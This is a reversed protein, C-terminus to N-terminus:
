GEAPSETEGFVAEITEDTQINTIVLPNTTVDSGNRIWKKFEYGEDECVARLTVKNGTEFYGTGYVVGKDAGEGSKTVAVELSTYPEPTPVENFESCYTLRTTFDNSNVFLPVGAGGGYFLGSALSDSSRGYFLPNLVSPVPTSPQLSDNTFMDSYFPIKTDVWEGQSDITWIDTDPVATVGAGTMGFKSMKTLISTHDNLIEPPFLEIQSVKEYKSEDLVDESGWNANDRAVYVSFDKVNRTGEWVSTVYNQYGDTLKSLHGYINAVGRYRNPKVTDFPETGSAAPIAYSVEDTHTGKVHGVGNPVLPYNSNYSGWGSRNVTTVGKGMGGQHYGDVTLNYDIDAQSDRNAYEVLYFILLTQRDYLNHTEWGKGRRRAAARLTNNNMKSVPKGLMTRYTGDWESQNNGGRYRVDDNVISCLKGTKRDLVAEDASTYMEPCREFGEIEVDSILWYQGDETDIINRWYEPLKVMVQGDSGDRAQTAQTWDDQNDFPTFVGEDTLVGGVMQSQVPLRRHLEPAGVRRVQPNRGPNDYFKGNSDPVFVGYVHAKYREDGQLLGLISEVTNDNPQLQELDEFLPTMRAVDRWIANHSVVVWATGTWFWDMEYMEAYGPYEVDTATERYEDDFYIGGPMKMVIHSETVRRLRMVMRDGTVPEGKVVIAEPRAIDSVVLFDRAEEHAPLTVTMYGDKELPAVKDSSFPREQISRILATTAKDM